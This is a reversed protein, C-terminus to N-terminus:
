GEGGGLGGVAAPRRDGVGGRRAEPLLDQLGDRWVGAQADLADQRQPAEDRARDPRGSRRHRDSFPKERFRNFSKKVYFWEKKASPVVKKRTATTTQTKKKM